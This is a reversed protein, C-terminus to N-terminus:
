FEERDYYELNRGKGENKNHFQLSHLQKMHKVLLPQNLARQKSNGGMAREAM